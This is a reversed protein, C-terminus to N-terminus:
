FSSFSMYLFRDCFILYKLLRTHDEVNNKLTYHIDAFKNLHEIRNRLIELQGCIHFVLLGLFNDIGTYAMTAFVMSVTQLVFTLEYQPSRTVDYAHYTPLPLLTSPATINSLYSYRMSIGSIPLVTILIFVTMMMCYGCTIIIRATQAKKIMVKREQASKMKLWD